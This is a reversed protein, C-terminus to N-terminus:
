LSFSDAYQAVFDLYVRADMQLCSDIPELSLLAWSCRVKSRLHPSAKKKSASLFTHRLHRCAGLGHIMGHLELNPAAASAM